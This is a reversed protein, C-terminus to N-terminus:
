TMMLLGADRVWDTKVRSPLGIGPRPTQLDPLHRWPHRLPLRLLNGPRNGRSGLLSELPLVNRGIGRMGAIGIGVIEDEMVIGTVSGNESGRGTRENGRGKKTGRTGTEKKGSENETVTGTGKGIKGTVREAMVDLRESGRM